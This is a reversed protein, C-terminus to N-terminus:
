KTVKEEKKAEAAAVKEAAKKEVEEKKPKEKEKVEKKEVKEEEQSAAEILIFNHLKEKWYAAASEEVQVKGKAEVTYTHGEVTVTIDSDTPNIVTVKM